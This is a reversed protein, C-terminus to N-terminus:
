KSKPELIIFAVRRNRAKGPGINPAIPKTDGYGKAVLRSPAVGLQILRERVASAREESLIKNHAASGSNDTHGQVEVLTLQPNRNLADAIEELLVSSDSLIKASDNEFHVQQSIRLEKKTITVSSNKPREDLQLALKVTERARVDTSASSGLHKEESVVIRTGGPPLGEVKFAGSFDTSTRHEKNQSDTIVLSANSLGKGTKADTVTGSITGVKPLAEVGCDISTISLNGNPAGTSAPAMPMGSAPAAVPAMPAGSADMAPAGPAPAGTVTATCTGPKYGDAKVAFTYTGPDLNGSRFHGNSSTIMGTMDAGQYLIQAGALGESHGNEHVFGDVINQPAPPSMVTHEIHKEVVVPPKEVTDTAYGIGFWLTWPAQPSTEELFQTTGSVGIDVALTAMLGKLVPNGRLGVTARSPTHAFDHQNGLCADGSFSALPNCTYGQRNVPIDVTYELFPNLSHVPGNLAFPMEAGVGIGFFDVRNIGLGYREIRNIVAHRQAETGQIIAASNDFKYGLNVHLLVPVSTDPKRFDFTALGRLLGSTSSGKVGVNGEGSLLYLQAEGGFNWMRHPETPWFGKVGLTTDGLVQYLTPTGQDDNTAYTNFGAYAELWNTVTASAVFDGGFRSVSDKQPNSANIGQCPASSSCLFGGAQFFQGYAAVRFTGAPASRASSVRMLGTSGSLTPMTYLDIDRMKSKEASNDVPASPALGMKDASDLSGDASASMGASPPTPAAGPAQPAMGGSTDVPAPASGMPAPAGQPAMPSAPPPAPPLQAHAVATALVTALSSVAPLLARRMTRQPPFLPAGLAEGDLPAAVRAGFDGRAAVEQKEDM